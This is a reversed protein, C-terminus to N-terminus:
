KIFEVFQETLKEEYEFFTKDDEEAIYRGEVKHNYLKWKKNHYELATLNEIWDGSNLYLTKGKSTTIEEIKPEHIHGCIVYDFKKEIALETCVKEYDAIFKVAKKVSNKIKKSLSYPEKGMKVLVFNILRNILILLDYGWGGLKALWKTHTISADFVDGHFLWAKKGDLELVLKDVLSFNGIHVDSFKRLFEDHNGTIYYVQTGKTSLSIIKKLVKLHTAPFYSKRFQWIDIIDGNLVLVKPKISSLYQVLEKAHCGYTGLHVDSLVVLDLKRKKM